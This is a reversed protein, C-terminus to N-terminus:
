SPAPRGRGGGWGRQHRSQVRAGQGLGAVQRRPVPGGRHVRTHLLYRRFGSRKRWVLELKREGYALDRSRTQVFGRIRAAFAGCAPCARAAEDATTLHM